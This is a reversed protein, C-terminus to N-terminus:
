EPLLAPSESSRITQQWVVRDYSIWHGNAKARKKKSDFEKVPSNEFIHSDDGHIKKALTFLFKLPHFKAQDAFRVGPTRM